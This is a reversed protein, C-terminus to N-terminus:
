RAFAEGPSVGRPLLVWMRGSQRMRGAQNGAEDGFGWYFDGRVGGRIASGTDQAIMLRNLPRSTNPWTTALWLPAGLPVFRPDIAISRGPTLPVGLAGIPGPGTAPLERFFVYRANHNLLATLRDPNQKAWAKIGQMSARELPLEGRDVLARGISRYPHGNQDAFGIRVTEGTDLRVQGSGQIQLFFLDIPDDLWLLVHEAGIAAGADIEARTHYPVVRRGQLRGRVQMGKLEPHLEALDVVLLDPPVGYVPHRFRASRKRSGHVLPEYYGTILGEATDDANLARHPVFRTEFFRRVLRRDQTKLAAAEDCPARWAPRSALARCGILFAGLAPLPDDEAWDRLESWQAPVLTPVAPMPGPAPKKAGVPPTPVAPKPPPVPQTVAPPPEPEARVDAPEDPEHM